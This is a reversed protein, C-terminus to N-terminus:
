ARNLKRMGARGGEPDGLDVCKPPPGRFRLGAPSRARPFGRAASYTIWIFFSYQYERDASKKQVRNEKGGM